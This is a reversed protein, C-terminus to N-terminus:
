LEILSNYTMKGVIMGDLQSILQQIKDDSADELNDYEEVSNCTFIEQFFNKKGKSEYVNYNKGLVNTFHNKMENILVLYEERRSVKVEYSITFLVKAM